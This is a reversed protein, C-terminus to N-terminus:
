GINEYYKKRRKRHRCKECTRKGKGLIAGCDCTRLRVQRALYSSNIGAYQDFIKAYDYGPLRFRYDMPGLLTQEFYPCAEGALARCPRDFICDQGNFNACESRIFTRLGVRAPM